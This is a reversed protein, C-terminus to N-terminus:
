PFLIRLFLMSGVCDFGHFFVQLLNVFIFNSKLVHVNQTLLFSIKNFFRNFFVYLRQLGFLRSFLLLYFSKFPKALILTKNIEQSIFKTIEFSKSDFTSKLNLIPRLEAVEAKPCSTSVEASCPTSFITNPIAWLPLNFESWQTKSLGAWDMKLYNKYFFSSTFWSSLKEPSTM